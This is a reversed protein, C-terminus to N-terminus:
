RCVLLLTPLIMETMILSFGHIASLVCCDAVFVFGCDALLDPWQIFPKRAGSKGCFDGIEAAYMHYTGDDARVVSGGWSSVNQGNLFYQYGLTRDKIPALDLMDCADGIWPRKCECPDGPSKRFGNHNCSPSSPVTGAVSSRFFLGSVSLLAVVVAMSYKAM